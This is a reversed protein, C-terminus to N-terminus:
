VEHHSRLIRDRYWMYFSSCVDISLNVHPYEKLNGCGLFWRDKQEKTNLERTKHFIFIHAVVLVCSALVMSVLDTKLRHKGVFTFHKRFKLFLFSITTAFISSNLILLPELGNLPFVRTTNIDHRLHNEVIVRYQRKMTGILSRCAGLMTIFAPALLSIATQPFSYNGM